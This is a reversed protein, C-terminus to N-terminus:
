SNPFAATPPTFNATYRGVGKTIRLDDIYGNHNNGSTADRGVALPNTTVTGYNVTHAVSNVTGNVAKYLVGSVRSAAIHNWAGTGLSAPFASTGPSGGNAMWGWALGGGSACTLYWGFSGDRYAIYYPSTTLSTNYVWLEVTFDGTGFNFDNSLAATFAKNGTGDFAMSSAGFKKEASSITASNSTTITRAYSSSDIAPPGADGHLLLTVSSFYPDTNAGRRFGAVGLLGPTIFGRQM